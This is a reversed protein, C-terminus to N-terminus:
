NILEFVPRTSIFGGTAGRHLSTLVVPGAQLSWLTVSMECNQRFIAAAIRAAGASVRKLGHPAASIKPKLSVWAPRIFAVIKGGLLVVPAPALTVSEFDEGDREGYIM